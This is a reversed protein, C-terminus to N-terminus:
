MRRRLWFDAAFRAIMGVALITSVLEVSLSDRGFAAAGLVAAALLM